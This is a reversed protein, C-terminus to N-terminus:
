VLLIIYVYICWEPSHLIVYSFYYCLIHCVILNSSNDPGENWVSKSEAAEDYIKIFGRQVLLSKVKDVDLGQKQNLMQKIQENDRVCAGLITTLFPEKESSPVDQLNSGISPNGYESNMESEEFYIQSEQEFVHLTAHFGEYFLFQMIM